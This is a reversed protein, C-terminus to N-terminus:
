RLRYQQTHHDTCHQGDFDVTISIDLDRSNGSNPSCSLRGTIEEDACITLPQTLYIVTQKWHTYKAFPGTSFAVTKHVQTFACDFHAVLAHVYDNRMSKLTFSSEFQLDDKTVTLIDLSLIPVSNTVVADGEVTDVLPETMAIDKICSM